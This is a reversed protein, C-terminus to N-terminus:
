HWIIPYKTFFSYFNHPHFLSRVPPVVSANTRLSQPFFVCFRLWYLQDSALIQFWSREFVFCSHCSNLWSLWDSQVWGEVCVYVCVVCRWYISLSKIDPLVCAYVASSFINGILSFIVNKSEKRLEYVIQLFYIWGFFTGDFISLNNEKGREYSWSRKKWRCQNGLGVTMERGM